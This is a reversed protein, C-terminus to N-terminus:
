TLKRCREYLGYEHPNFNFGYIRYFVDNSMELWERTLKLADFTKTSGDSFSVILLDNVVTQATEYVIEKEFWELDTM